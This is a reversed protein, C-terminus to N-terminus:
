GEMARRVRAQVEAAAQLLKAKARRERGKAADLARYEVATAAMMEGWEPSDKKVYDYFGAEERWALYGAHLVQKYHTVDQAAEAFKLALLGVDKITNTTHKTM